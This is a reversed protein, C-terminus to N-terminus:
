AAGDRGHERGRLGYAKAITKMSLYLREEEPLLRTFGFKEYFASAKSDVPDTIVLSGGVIQAGRLAEGLAKKVIM